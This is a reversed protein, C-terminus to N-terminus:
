NRRFRLPAKAHCNDVAFNGEIVRAGHRTAYYTAETGVFIENKASRVVLDEGDATVVEELLIRADVLMRARLMAQDITYDEGLEVEGVFLKKPDLWRHRRRIARMIRCNHPCRHEAYEAPTEEVIPVLVHVIYTRSM